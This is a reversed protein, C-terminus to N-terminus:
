RGLEARLKDHLTRNLTRKRTMDWPTQAYAALADAYAKIPDPAQAGASAPSSSAHVASGADAGPAATSPRSVRRTPQAAATKRRFLSALLRPIM